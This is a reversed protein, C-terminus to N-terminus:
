FDRWCWPLGSPVDDRSCWRSFAALLVSCFQEWETPTLTLVPGAEGDKSDRVHYGFGDLMVEVCNAATDSLRAKVWRTRGPSVIM